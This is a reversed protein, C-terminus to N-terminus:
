VLFIGLILGLLFSTVNMTISCLIAIWSKLELIKILIMAELLIVFTEGVLIYWMGDLFQPIVFWLYPLSLANCLLGASIIENFSHSKDHFVFKLLSILLPIEIIWATILALFFSTGTSDYVSAFIRIPDASVSVPLLLLGFLFYVIIKWKKIIL